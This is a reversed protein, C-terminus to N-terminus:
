QLAEHVNAPTKEGAFTTTKTTKQFMQPFKGLTQQQKPPKKSCKRSFSRCINSNQGNKPVNAPFDGTNTASNTTKQFMQPFKGPTQQQKPPKTSCKGSSQLVNTATKIPPTLTTFLGSNKTSYVSQTLHTM